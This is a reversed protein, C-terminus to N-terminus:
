ARKRSKMALQPYIEPSGYKYIADLARGLVNDNLHEAKIDEGILREVPKDLFFLPILYLTRNAFGLHHAAHRIFCINDDIFM